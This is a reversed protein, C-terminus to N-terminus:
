WYKKHQRKDMQQLGIEVLDQLSCDYIKSSDTKPHEFQWMALIEGFGDHSNDNNGAYGNQKDTAVHMAEFDADVDMIHASFKNGSSNNENSLVSYLLDQSGLIISCTFLTDQLAPAVQKPSHFSDNDVTETRVVVVWLSREQPM